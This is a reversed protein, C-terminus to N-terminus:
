PGARAPPSELRSSIQGDHRLSSLLRFVQGDLLWSLHRSVWRKRARIEKNQELGFFALTKDKRRATPVHCVFEKIVHPIQDSCQSTEASIVSDGVWERQTLHAQFFLVNWMVNGGSVFDNMRVSIQMWRM